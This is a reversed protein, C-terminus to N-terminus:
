FASHYIDCFPSCLCKQKSSMVLEERPSPLSAWYIWHLSFHFFHFFPFYRNKEKPYIVSIRNWSHPSNSRENWPVIIGIYEVVISLLSRKTEYWDQTIHATRTKIHNKKKMKESQFFPMRFPSSFSNGFKTNMSVLSLLLLWELRNGAVKWAEICLFGLSWVLTSTAAKSWPQTTLM